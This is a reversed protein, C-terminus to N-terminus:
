SLSAAKSYEQIYAWLAATAAACRQSENALDKLRQEAAKVAQEPSGQALQELVNHIAAFDYGAKRLLVVVQLKRVQEPSYMRYRNTRDREPQLLGREEWYRIASVRVGVSKAAEHIHMSDRYRPLNELTPLTASTQHLIHLTAEIERRNHHIEAHKEDIFTLAGALNDHHINALILRGRQWGYAGIITRAVQMAQLHRQTYLRYGNAGRESAPIFGYTEYNRVTQVGVGLAKAIENTRLFRKM